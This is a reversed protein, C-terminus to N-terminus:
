KTYYYIRTLGYGTSKQNEEGWKDFNLHGSEKWEIYNLVLELDENLDKEFQAKLEIDVLLNIQEKIRNSLQIDEYPNGIYYNPLHHVSYYIQYSWWSIITSRAMDDLPELELAKFLYKESRYYKGYWRFPRNDKNELICWEELTPKIIKESLPQPFGGYDADQVTEFYPFLYSVFEIRQDLEWNLADKIFTDLHNFAKKRLGKERDFCYNAYEIWEIKEKTSNALILLADNQSNAIM